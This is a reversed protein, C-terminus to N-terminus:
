LLLQLIQQTRIDINRISFAIVDFRGKKNKCEELYYLLFRELNRDIHSKIGDYISKAIEESQKKSYNVENM